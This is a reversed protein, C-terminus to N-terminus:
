ESYYEWKMIEPLNWIEIVQLNYFVEVCKNFIM